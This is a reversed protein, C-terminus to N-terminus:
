GLTLKGAVDTASNEPVAAPSAIPVTDAAPASAAAAAPFLTCGNCLHM